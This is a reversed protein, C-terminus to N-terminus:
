HKRAPEMVKMWRRMQSLATWSQVTMLFEDDSEVPRNQSICIDEEEKDFHVWFTPEISDENPAVDSKIQAKQQESLGLKGRLNMMQFKGDAQQVASLMGSAGQMPDYCEAAFTAFARTSRLHLNGFSRRKEDTGTLVCPERYLSFRQSVAIDAVVMREKTTFPLFPVICDIRRCLASISEHVAKFERMCLPRLIKKVLERQIWAVDKQDVKSTMREKHDEFFQIVEKQGWNATMIWISQSCDIKHGGASAAAMHGGGSM